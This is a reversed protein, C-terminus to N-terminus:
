AVEDTLQDSHDTERSAIENVFQELQYASLKERVFRRPKGNGRAIADMLAGKSVGLERCKARVSGMSRLTNFWEALAKCQEDSLVRKRSM